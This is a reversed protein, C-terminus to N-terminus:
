FEHQEFKVFAVVLFVISLSLTVLVPLWAWAPLHQRMAAAMGFGGLSYPTFKILSPSINVLVQGGLLAGLSIGLVLSRNNFLVGLMVNLTLYFVLPIMVLALGVLFGVLSILGPNMASVQAYAVIGPIGLMLVMIGLGFAALKALLFATRSAPKSLVWEATGSEKEDIVLGQSMAIVGLALATPGATFFYQLAQLSPDGQILPEGDPTVMGPLLFQLLFMFGNILLLWLGIQILWRNRDSWRYIESRFLNRFGSLKGASKVYNLSANVSM